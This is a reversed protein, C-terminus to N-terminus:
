KYKGSKKECPIGNKGEATRIIYFDRHEYTNFWRIFLRNRLGEKKDGTECLYLM